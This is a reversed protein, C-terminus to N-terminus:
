RTGSPDAAGEGGSEPNGCTQRARAGLQEPTLERHRYVYAIERHIGARLASATDAPLMNGNTLRYLKGGPNDVGALQSEESIGKDRAKAAQKVLAGVMTCAMLARSETPAASAGRGATAADQGPESPVSEWEDGHALTSAALLAVALGAIAL